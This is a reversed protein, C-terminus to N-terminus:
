DVIAAHVMDQFHDGRTFLPTGNTLRRPMVSLYVGVVQADPDAWFMSIFAGTHSVTRPSVLSGNL